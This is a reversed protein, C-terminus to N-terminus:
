NNGGNHKRLQAEAAVAATTAVRDLEKRTGKIGQLVKIKLIATKCFHAKDRSDPCVRASYLDNLITFLKGDAWQQESWMDSNVPAEVDDPNESYNWDIGSQMSKIEAIAEEIKNERILIIIHNM